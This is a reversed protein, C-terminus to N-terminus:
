NLDFSKLEQMERDSISDRSRMGRPLVHNRMANLLSAALENPNEALKLRTVHQEFKKAKRLVEVSAYLRLSIQMKQFAAHRDADSHKAMVDFIAQLYKEYRDQVDLKHRARREAAKQNWFTVIGLLATLVAVIAPIWIKSDDFM